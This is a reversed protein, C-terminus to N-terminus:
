RSEGRPAAGAPDQGATHRLVLGILDGVKELDAEMIDEDEIRCGFEEEVALLLRLLSLSDLRIEPSYLSIDDRIGEPSLRLELVDVMIERVTNAAEEDKRYM